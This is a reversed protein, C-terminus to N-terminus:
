WGVGVGLILRGGSLVDLSAAASALVAPIRYPLLLVATGLKIRETAGAAVSVMTMPDMFHIGWLRLLHDNAWASHFGLRDATRAIPVLNQQDETSLFNPFTVGLRM